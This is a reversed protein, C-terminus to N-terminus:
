LGSLLKLMNKGFFSLGKSFVFVGRVQVRVQCSLHSFFLPTSSPSPLLPRPLVFALAFRTPSDCITLNACIQLRYLTLSFFFFLSLYISLSLSLCLSIYQASLTLHRHLKLKSLRVKAGAVKYIADFNKPPVFVVCM